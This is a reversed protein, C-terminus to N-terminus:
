SWSRLICLSRVLTLTRTPTCSCLRYAFRFTLEPLALCTPYRPGPAANETGPGANLRARRIGQMGRCQKQVAVAAELVCGLRRAKTSQPARPKNRRSQGALHWSLLAIESCTRYGEVCRRAIPRRSNQKRARPPSASSITTSQTPCITFRSSSPTPTFSLPAGLQLVVVLHTSLFRRPLPPSSLSLPPAHAALDCVRRFRVSCCAECEGLGM